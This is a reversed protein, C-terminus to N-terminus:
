LLARRKVRAATAYGAYGALRAVDPIILDGGHLHALTELRLEQLARMVHVRSLGVADAVDTRRLPFPCTSETALGRRRVREYIEILFYGIREAAGMRGLMTLRMDARHKEDLRTRLMDLGLAPYEAILAAVQSGDLACFAAPTLTQVSHSHGGLLASGLGVTDGPLLVDLIQRSGNPLRLYRIAWGAYLTFVARGREGQRIVDTGAPVVLHDRKMSAIRGLEQPAMPRFLRKRRLGCAECPIM